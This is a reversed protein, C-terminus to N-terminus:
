AGLVVATSSYETESGGGDWVFVKVTYVGPLAFAHSDRAQFSGGSGVLYGASNSGDGWYVRVAYASAPDTTDPDSVSALNGFLKPAPNLSVTVPGSSSSTIPQDSVDAVLSATQAPAGGDDSATITVTYDGGENWTHGAVFSAGVPEGASTSGDGWNVLVSYDGADPCCLVGAVTGNWAQGEAAQIPSAPSLTFPADTVTEVATGSVTVGVSDTVTVTATYSGEESYAFLDPVSGDNSTYHDVFGLEGYDVSVAYPATGGTIRAVLSGQPVRNETLGPVVIARKVRMQLGM